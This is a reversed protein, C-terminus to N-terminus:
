PIAFCNRAFFKQLHPFHQQKPYCNVSFDFFNSPLPLFPLKSSIASKSKKLDISEPHM